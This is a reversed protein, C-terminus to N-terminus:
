NGDDTRYARFATESPDGGIRLSVGCAERRQRDRRLDRVTWSALEGVAPVTHPAAAKSLNRM